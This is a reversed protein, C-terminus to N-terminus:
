RCDLPAQDAMPGGRHQSAYGVPKAQALACGQGAGADGAARDRGAGGCARGGAPERMRDAPRHGAGCAADHRGRRNRQRRHRPRPARHRCSRRDARDLRCQGGVLRARGPVHRAHGRRLGRAFAVFLAGILTIAVGPYMVWERGIRDAAWGLPITFAFMGAAHFMHSFAIATLSHGHHALVLSTLVMVIAM